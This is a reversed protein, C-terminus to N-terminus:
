PNCSKCPTYGNKIFDNYSSFYVKNEESLKQAWTCEAFHFKKTSKSGVYAKTVPKPKAITVNDGDISEPMEGKATEGNPLLVEIEKRSNNNNTNNDCGVLFILNLCLVFIIIKKM